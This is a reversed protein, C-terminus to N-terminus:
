WSGLGSTTMQRRFDDPLVADATQAPVMRLDQRVDQNTIRLQITVKTPQPGGASFSFLYYTGPALSAVTFQEGCPISGQAVLGFYRGNQQVLDFLQSTCDDASLRGSLMFMDSRSVRVDGLELTAKPTPNYARALAEALDGPIWQSPYGKRSVSVNDTASEPRILVRPSLMRLVFPGTGVDDFHFRGQADTIAFNPAPDIEVGTANKARGVMVNVDAVPAGTADDVLRGSAPSAATLAFDHRETAEGRIPEIQRRYGDAWVQVAMNPEPKLVEYHFPNGQAVVPWGITPFGTGMTSPYYVAVKVGQVVAGTVADRVAGELVVTQQQGGLAILLVLLLVWRV